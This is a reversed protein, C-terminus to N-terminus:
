KSKEPMVWAAVLYLIICPIFGPISIAAYIVRLLAKDVGLYEAFGGIVGAFMKDSSKTLKKDM